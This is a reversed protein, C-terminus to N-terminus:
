ELLTLELSDEIERRLKDYGYHESIDASNTAEVQIFSINIDNYQYIIENDQKPYIIIIEDIVGRRTKYKDRKKNDYYGFNYYDKAQEIAQTPGKKNYINKSIRCKVEIVIAKILTNTENDFLAILIDPKYHRANMRMFSCINRNMIDIDLPIENEYSIECRQKDKLFILPENTPIEGNFVDELTNDGIWGKSWKFNNDKIINIVSVLSYYEFLKPTSKSPFYPKRNSTDNDEIAIINCYYDYLQLYRNDRLLKHSVRLQKESNSIEKLWTENVYHLIISKIKKLNALTDEIFDYKSILENIGRELYKIEHEKQYKYDKSINRENAMLYYNKRNEELLRQKETVKFLFEDNIIMYKNEMFCIIEIIKDIIRKVWKNELIDVDYTSHKEFTTETAYPNRNKNTGNTSLWKQSKMDPRSSYHQERYVKKIDVIPKKILNNISNIIMEINNNIYLYLKNLSSENDGYINKQGSMRQIYLNQSLGKTVSELYKRLNILGEWEISTPNILYLGSYSKVSTIVKIGYYGPTLMSEHFAAESIIIDQEGESIILPTESKSSDIELVANKDSSEFSVMIKNYENFEAVNEGLDCNTNEDIIIEKQSLYHGNDTLPKFVIKTLMDM